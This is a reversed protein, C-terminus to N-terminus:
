SDEQPQTSGTAAALDDRSFRIRRGRPLERDSLTEEIVALIPLADQALQSRAMASNQYTMSSGSPAGVLFPSINAVRALELAQHQRSEVSQLRSPDISSEVFEIGEGLAAVALEDRMTVWAHALEDLEESGLPEGSTQRLYGAAIPNTAFRESSRDLREATTIARSGIELLPSQSSWFPIYDNPDVARGSIRLEDLGGVPYNGVIMPSIVDVVASPIWRFSRPRGDAYRATTQWVARGTMMLDDVTWALIHARSVDPDPREMWPDPPLITETRGSTTWTEELHDWSTTAVLGALLDRARSITPISMARDRGASWSSSALLETTATSIM